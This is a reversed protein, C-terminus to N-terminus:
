FICGVQPDYKVSASNKKKKEITPTDMQRDREKEWRWMYVVRFLSSLSKCRSLDTSNFMGVTVYAISADKTQSTAATSNSFSHRRFPQGVAM